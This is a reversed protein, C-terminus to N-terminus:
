PSGEGEEETFDKLEKDFENRGLERYHERMALGVIVLVGMVCLFVLVTVSMNM